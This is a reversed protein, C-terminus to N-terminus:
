YSAASYSDSTYDKTDGHGSSYSSSHGNYETGHGQYGGGSSHGGGGYGHDPYVYYVTTEKQCGGMKICKQM